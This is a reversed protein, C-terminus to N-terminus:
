KLQNCHFGYSVWYCDDSGIVNFQLLLVGSQNARVMKMCLTELKSCNWTMPVLVLVLINLHKPTNM